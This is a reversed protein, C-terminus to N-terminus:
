GHAEQGCAGNELLRNYFSEVKSAYESALTFGRRDKATRGRLDHYTALMKEFAVSFSETNGPLFSYGNYGDLFLDGNEYGSALSTLIPVGLSNAEIIDRGLFGFSEARAIFDCGEMMSFVENTQGAFHIIGALGEAQVLSKLENEMPGSGFLVLSCKQPRLRRFCEILFDQGKGMHMQAFSGIVLHEKPIHFRLHHIDTKSFHPRYDGFDVPNTMTATIPFERFPEMENQGIAIIGDSRKLMWLFIKRSWGLRYVPMTVRAHTVIKIRNGFVWRALLVSPAFVIENFHLINYGQEVYRRLALIRPLHALLRCIGFPTVREYTSYFLEPFGQIGFNISEKKYLDIVPGGKPVLLLSGSTHKALYMISRTAGGINSSHSIFLVKNM